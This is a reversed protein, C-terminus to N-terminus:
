APFLQLRFRYCYRGDDHGDIAALTVLREHVGAVRQALYGSQWLAYAAIVGMAGVGVPNIDYLYARKFEIGKPSWGMPKNIVLDAVVAMMWAIAIFGAMFILNNINDATM